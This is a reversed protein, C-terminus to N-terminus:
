FLVGSILKGTNKNIFSRQWDNFIQNMRESSSEREHLTLSPLELVRDKIPM